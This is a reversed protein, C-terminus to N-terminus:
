VIFAGAVSALLLLATIGFMASSYVLILICVINEVVPWRAPAGVMGVGVVLAGLGLAVLGHLTWSYPFLDMLFLLVQSAAFLVASGILAARGVTM